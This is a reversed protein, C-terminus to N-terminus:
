AAVAVTDQDNAGITLAVRVVDEFPMSMPESRDQMYKDRAECAKQLLRRACGSWATGRGQVMHVNRMGISANLLRQAKASAPRCAGITRAVNEYAQRVINKTRLNATPKDSAAFVNRRRSSSVDPAGERALVFRESLVNEPLSLLTRAIDFGDDLKSMVKVVRVPTNAVSSLDDDDRWVRSDNGPVVYLLSRVWAYRNSDDYALQRMTPADSHSIVRVLDVDPAPVRRVNIEALEGPPATKPSCGFAGLLVALTVGALIVCIVSLVVITAVTVTSLRKPEVMVRKRQVNAGCISLEHGKRIRSVGVRVVQKARLTAVM